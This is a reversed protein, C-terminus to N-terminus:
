GRRTIHSMQFLLFDPYEQIGNHAIVLLLSCLMVVSFAGERIQMLRPLAKIRALDETRRAQIRKKEMHARKTYGGELTTHM